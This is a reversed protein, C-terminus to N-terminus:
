FTFNGYDALSLSIDDQPHLQPLLVTILENVLVALIAMGKENPHLNDDYLVDAENMMIRQMPLQMAQHLRIHDRWAKLPLVRIHPRTAVFDTITANAADIDSLDPIKRPDLMWEAAGHMDPIDGIVMPVDFRELLSLGHQLQAIRTARSMPGGYVYWFLFDIGVILTPNAATMSEVEADGAILPKTSFLLDVNETFHHPAHIGRSLIQAFTYDTTFGASVSAGIIGINNLAALADDHPDTGPTADGCAATSCTIWVMGCVILHRSFSHTGRYHM